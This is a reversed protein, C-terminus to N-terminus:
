PQFVDDFKVSPEKRPLVSGNEMADSLGTAADEDYWWYLYSSREDGYKSLVTDPTGFKNWYLLRTYNLNWLLAYPFENYVIQDIERNIQNRKEVNFITRQQEIMQDVKANKFGTINNGAKRDAEKSSWMGEPDKFSSGGWAAWTMSYNFEDM